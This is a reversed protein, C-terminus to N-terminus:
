LLNLIIVKKMEVSQMTQIRIYYVGPSVSSIDTQLFHDGDSFTADILTKVKVGSSNILEVIVRTKTQINFRINIQDHAPVPFVNFSTHNSVEHVTVGIDPNRKMLVTIGPYSSMAYGIQQNPFRLKKLSTIYNCSDSYWSNGSDTTKLIGYTSIFGTDPYPFWIDFCPHEFYLEDWNIGGDTTKLLLGEPYGYMTTNGTVFGTDQNLFCVGSMSYIYSQYTSTWNVGGNTTKYVLGGDTIMSGLSENIFQADPVGLGPAPTTLFAVQSWSTGGDITKVVTVYEM